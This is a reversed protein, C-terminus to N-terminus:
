IDKHLGHPNDKNFLKNRFTMLLSSLKEDPPSKYTKTKESFLSSWYEDFESYYFPVLYGEQLLFRFYRHYKKNYLPRLREISKLNKFAQLSVYKYGLWDRLGDVFIYSNNSVLGWEVEGGQYKFYYTVYAFPNLLPDSHVIVEEIIRYRVGIPTLSHLKFLKIYDM